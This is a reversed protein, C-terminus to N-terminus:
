DFISYDVKKYPDPHISNPNRGYLFGVREGASLGRISSPQLYLGGSHIEGPQTFRLLNTYNPM